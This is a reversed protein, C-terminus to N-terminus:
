AAVCIWGDLIVDSSSWVSSSVGGQRSSRSLSGEEDMAPSAAPPTLKRVHLHFAEM